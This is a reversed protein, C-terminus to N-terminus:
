AIRESHKQLAYSLDKSEDFLIILSDYDIFYTTSCKPIVNIM